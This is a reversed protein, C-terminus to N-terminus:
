GLILTIWPGGPGHAAGAGLATAACDLVQARVAPEALWGTVVADPDATGRAVAAGTVTGSVLPIGDPDVVDFFNRDRMDASHERALGALGRDVTSAGCGAHTRAQAVLAVVGASLSEPADTVPPVDARSSASPSSRPASSREATPPQSTPVTGEAAPAPTAPLSTTGTQSSIGTQSSSTGTQPSAGTQSASTETQPSTSTQPSSTAGGEGTAEPAPAPAPADTAPPSPREDRSASPSGALGDVGMVVVPEDPLVRGAATTSSADLAVPTPQDGAGSVVPVALVAGTLVVTCGLGLLVRRAVASARGHLRSGGSTNPV